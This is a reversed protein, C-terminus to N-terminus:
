AAFAISEAGPQSTRAFRSDRKSADGGARPGVDVLPTKGTSVTAQKAAFSLSLLISSHAARACADTSGGASGIRRRIWDATPSTSVPMVFHISETECIRPRERQPKEGRAAAERGPGLQKERRVAAAERERSREGRRPKEGSRRKGRQKKEERTRRKEGSRRKERGAKRAAGGIIEGQKEGRAAAAREM